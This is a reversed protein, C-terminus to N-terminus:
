CEPGTKCSRSVPQQTSPALMSVLFSVKRSCMHKNSCINLAWRGATFARMRCVFFVAGRLRM